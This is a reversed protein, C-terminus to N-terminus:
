SNIGGEFQIWVGHAKVDLRIVEALLPHLTPRGAQGGDPVAKCVTFLLAPGLRWRWSAGVKRGGRPPEQLVTGSARSVEQDSKGIEPGTM